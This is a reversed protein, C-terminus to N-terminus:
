NSILKPMLNIVTNFKDYLTCLWRHLQLFTQSGGTLSTSDNQPILPLRRLRCHNSPLPMIGFISTPKRGIYFRNCERLIREECRALVVKFNLNYSITPFHYNGSSQSIFRLYVLLQIHPILLYSFVLVQEIKVVSATTASIGSGAPAPIGSILPIPPM